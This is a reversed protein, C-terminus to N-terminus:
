QWEALTLVDAQRTFVKSTLVQHVEHDADGCCDSLVTLRYDKDAAERLTSLVVGGTAVGTLVLHQINQSRLVVELDSGAFASVRRKIVVIDDATPAVAPDIKVFEGPSLSAFREKSAAFGKNNMNIEPTGPRFGVTVYIVPIKNSRAATIAKAVNNVLEPAGPLNKLIATQMDMVLLATDGPNSM